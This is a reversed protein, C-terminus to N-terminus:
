IIGFKRGARELVELAQELDGRTHTAMVTIRLRSSKEPVTPPRIALIFVDEGLIYDAMAVATEPDGVMVPVIHTTSGLINFGLAKLGNRFFLHNKHLQMRREPEKQLVDLAEIASAVVSPPLATTFIFSRSRNILFQKLESTGAVFAGFGGMAKGMTGMIAVSGNACLDLHELTGRGQEGLVGTGHADDVILFADYRNALEMLLPLPAIDGDMSFVGDTIIIKRRYRAAKRLLDELAGADRHPFVEIRAGSLRCGDIISAHNLEDSYIVDGSGALASLLGINAMYGTSFVLSDETEKFAALKQELDDFLSINGSVLRAAGSGAGWTEMAQQAKKVVRPHSCLGLYDNSAMMLMERGAINVKPGSQSCAERLVRYLGAQRIQQLENTFSLM